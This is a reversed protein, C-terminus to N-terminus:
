APAAKQAERALLAAGLAAADDGLAAPVIRVKAATEAPHIRARAAKEIEQVFRRGLAEVLGGGFVVRDVALVNVAGAAAIGLCEAADAVIKRTRRDGDSFAKAIAAARAEEPPGDCHDELGSKKEAIRRAVATRSALAELSGAFVGAWRKETRDIILHGIEGASGLTGRHIRGDLVIGGGVGTGVFIGVLDRAGRGAGLAWEGYVGANADNEVVVPRALAKSLVQGVRVREWGLNVAALVVGTSSDAPGPVGIGIAPADAPSLGAAELAERITEAVRRLVEAPGREAKTRRKSRALVKGKSDAVVALIKTGGLDAGVLPAGIGLRPHPATM